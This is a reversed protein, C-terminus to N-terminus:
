PMDKRRQPPVGAQHRLGTGQGPAHGLHWQQCNRCQYPHMHDGGSTRIKNARAKAARRSPFRTKGACVEADSPRRSKGSM